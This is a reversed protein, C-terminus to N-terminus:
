HNIEPFLKLQYNKKSLTSSNNSGSINKRGIPDYVYENSPNLM